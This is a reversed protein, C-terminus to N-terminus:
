SASGVADGAVRTGVCCAAMTTRSPAEGAGGPFEVTWMGEAKMLFRKLESVAVTRAAEPLAALGPADVGGLWSTVLESAVRCRQRASGDDLYM